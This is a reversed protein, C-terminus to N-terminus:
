SLPEDPNIQQNKTFDPAKDSLMSLFHTKISNETESQPEAQNILTYAQDYDGADYAAQAQKLAQDFEPSIDDPNEKIIQEYLFIAFKKM